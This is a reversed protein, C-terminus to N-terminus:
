LYLCGVPVNVNDDITTNHPLLQLKVYECTRDYHCMASLAIAFKTKITQNVHANSINSEIRFGNMSM